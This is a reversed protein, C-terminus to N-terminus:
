SCGTPQLSLPLSLPGPIRALVVRHVSAPGSKLWAGAVGVVSVVFELPRSNAHVDSEGAARGGRASKWVCKEFRGTTTLQTDM